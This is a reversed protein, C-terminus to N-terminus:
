GPLSIPAVIPVPLWSRPPHATSPAPHRLPSRPSTVVGRGLHRHPHHRRRHQRGSGSRSRVAGDASVTFIWVFQKLDPRHDKSDGDKVALTPQKWPRPWGGQEYAGCFRISTSDNHLRSLNIDFHDVADLVLRTLLSGSGRRVATAFRRGSGSCWARAAAPLRRPLLPDGMIAAESAPAQRSHRTCRNEIPRLVM